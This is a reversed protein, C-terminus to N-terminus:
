DKSFSVLFQGGRERSLLAVSHNVVLHTVCVELGEIGGSTKKEERGKKSESNNRSGVRQRHTNTSTVM